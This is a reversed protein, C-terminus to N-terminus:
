SGARTRREDETAHKFRQFQKSITGKNMGRATLAKIAEGRTVNPNHYLYNWILVLAGKNSYQATPYSWRETIEDQDLHL